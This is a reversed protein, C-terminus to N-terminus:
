EVFSTIQMMYEPIVMYSYQELISPDFRLQVYISSLKSRGGVWDLQFCCFFISSFFLDVLLLFKLYTISCEVFSTIQM